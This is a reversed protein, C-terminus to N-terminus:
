RLVIRFMELWLEHFKIILFPDYYKGNKKMIFHSSNFLLNLLHKFIFITTSSYSTM